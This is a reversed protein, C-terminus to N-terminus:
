HISCTAMSVCRAIRLESTERTSAWSLSTTAMRGCASRVVVRGATRTWRTNSFVCRRCRAHARVADVDNATAQRDSLRGRQRGDTGLRNRFVRRFRVQGHHTTSRPLGSRFRLQGGPPVVPQKATIGPGAPSVFTLFPAANIGSSCSLQPTQPRAAGMEAIVAKLFQDNTLGTAPRALVAMAARTFHGNGGSEIAQESSQCTAFLVERMTGDIALLEAPGFARTGVGLQNSAARKQPARNHVEIMKPTLVLFRVKEDESGAAESTALLRTGGGSHCCDFFVHVAVGPKARDLLPGILDDVIFGKTGFDIPVLAEDQGDVEQKSADPVRTGHGSYHIPVIDGSVASDILTKIATVIADFTAQQDTLM